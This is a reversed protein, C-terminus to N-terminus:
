PSLNPRFILPSSRGPPKFRVLPELLLATLIPFCKM